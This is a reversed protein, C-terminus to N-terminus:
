ILFTSLVSTRTWNESPMPEGHITVWLTGM